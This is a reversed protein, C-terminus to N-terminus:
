TSTNLKRSNSPLNCRITAPKSGTKAWPTVFSFDLCSSSKEKTARPFNWNWICGTQQGFCSKQSELDLIHIEKSSISPAMNQWWFGHVNRRQPRENTWVLWFHHTSEKSRLDIQWQRRRGSLFSSKFSKGSSMQWLWLHLGLSWWTWRLISSVVSARPLLLAANFELSLPQSTAESWVCDTGQCLLVYVQSLKYTEVKPKTM